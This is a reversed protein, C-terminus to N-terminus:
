ENSNERAPEIRDRINQDELDKRRQKTKEAIISHIDASAMIYALGLANAVARANSKGHGVIINGKIGLLPAGGYEAYDFERMVQKFHGRMLLGGFMAFINSRRGQRAIKKIFGASSEAMKLITNGIFGDMVVVDVIGNILDGSEINGVFNITSDSNLCSHAEKVTINGKGPEEGISLLAVKPEDRSLVHEAYLSGMWAFHQLHIPRCDVNAGIDLILTPRGHISPFLTMLAARDIGEIKGLKVIASTVVAGTNGTSVFGKAQNEEVLEIGKMISCEPKRLAATAKEHMGFSEEAHVIEIEEPLTSKSTAKEIEASNGVLKIRLFKHQTIAQLAGKLNIELGTDGGMADLAIPIPKDFKNGSKERFHALKKTYYVQRGM